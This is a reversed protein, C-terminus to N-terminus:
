KIIRRLLRVAQYVIIGVIAGIIIGLVAFLAIVVPGLIIIGFGIKEINIPMWIKTIYIISTIFGIIAGILGALLSKGIHKFISKFTM